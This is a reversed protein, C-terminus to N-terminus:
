ESRIRIGYVLWGLWIVGILLAVVQPFWFAMIVLLTNIALAFYSNKQGARVTSTSKENKTLPNPNLATHGLFIWAMSQLANIAAYVVVAATAHDTFLHESLLTTTFPLIVITLLLFGNAYILAPSSKHILKMTGHHNVWAIFVITFSLLFAFVSPLLHQLALWLDNTTNIIEGSNIKIDIVLLTLAVAFVGDSFAELRSNVNSEGM